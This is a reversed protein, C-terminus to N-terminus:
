DQYEKYYKAEIPVTLGWDTQIIQGYGGSMKLPVVDVTEVTPTYLAYWVTVPTGAEYQEALFAKWDDLTSYTNQAFRVMALKSFTTVTFSTAKTNATAKRYAFHTCFGPTQKETTRTSLMYYMYMGYANAGSSTATLWTETGDLVLKKIYRTLKGSQADITDRYSGDPMAYLEPCQTSGGDFYPEQLNSSRSAIQPTSFDPQIPYDTNPASRPKYSYEPTNSGWFVKVNSIDDTSNVGYVKFTSGITSNSEWGDIYMTFSTKIHQTETGDGVVDGEFAVTEFGTSEGYTIKITEDTSVVADLVLTITDDNYFAQNAVIYPDGRVTSVSKLLNNPEVVEGGTYPEYEPLTETTYSGELLMPNSFVTTTDTFPKSLYNFRLGIKTISSFNNKMVLSVYDANRNTVAIYKYDSDTRDGYVIISTNKSQAGGDIAFTITKGANALLYDNLETTYMECYYSDNINSVITGDDQLKCREFTAKSLDLMNYGEYQEQKASGSVTVSKFPGKYPSTYEVRGDGSVTDPVAGAIQKDGLYLAAPRLDGKCFRCKSSGKYLAM